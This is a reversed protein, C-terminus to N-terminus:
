KNQYTVASLPRGALIKSLTDKLFLIEIEDVATKSSIEQKQNLRTTFYKHLDERSDHQADESFDFIVEEGLDRGRYYRVDSM